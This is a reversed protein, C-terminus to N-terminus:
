LVQRTRLDFKAEKFNSRTCAFITPFTREVKGNQQPTYPATYKVTTGMDRLVLNKNLKHQFHLNEGVNDM